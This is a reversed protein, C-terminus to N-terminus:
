SQSRNIEKAEEFKASSHLFDTDCTLIAAQLKIWWRYDFAYVKIIEHVSKM